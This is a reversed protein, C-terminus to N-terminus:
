EKSGLKWIKDLVSLSFLFPSNLAPSALSWLKRAIFCKLPDLLRHGALVELFWSQLSMELQRLRSKELSYRKAM